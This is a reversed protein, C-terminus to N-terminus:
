YDKSNRIKSQNSAGSNLRQRKRNRSQAISNKIKLMKEDPDEFL